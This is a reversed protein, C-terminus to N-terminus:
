AMRTLIWEKTNFRLYHFLLDDIREYSAFFPFPSQRQPNHLVPSTPPCGYFLLYSYIGVFFSGYNIQLFEEKTGQRNFLYIMVGRECASRTIRKKQLM